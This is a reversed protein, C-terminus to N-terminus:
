GEVWEYIVCISGDSLESCYEINPMNYVTESINKIRSILLQKNSYYQGYIKLVHKNGLEDIIFYKNM